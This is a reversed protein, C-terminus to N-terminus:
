GANKVTSGNAVGNAGGGHAGGDGAAWDDGFDSEGGIVEKLWKRTEAGTVPNFLIGLAIGAVLLTANRHSRERKGQLRDAASRLDEVALRLKERIEDDTAVRAALTVPSTRSGTLEGYLEKAAAFASLVDSRLEDDAMARELYPKV